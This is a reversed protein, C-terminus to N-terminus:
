RQYRYSHVMDNVSMNETKMPVENFKFDLDVGLYESLEKIDKCVEEISKSRNVITEITINKLKEMGLGMYM